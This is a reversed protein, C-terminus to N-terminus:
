HKRRPHKVPFPEEPHKSALGFVSRMRDRRHGVIEHSEDRRHPCKFSCLMLQWRIIQLNPRFVVTTAETGLIRFLIHCSTINSVLKTKAAGSIPCELPGAKLTTETVPTKQNLLIEQVIDFAKCVQELYPSFFIHSALGSGLMEPLAFNRLKPATPPDRRSSRRKGVRIGFEKSCSM